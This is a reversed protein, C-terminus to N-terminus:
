SRAPKCCFCSAASRLQHLPWHLFEDLWESIKKKLMVVLMVKMRTKTWSDVTKYDRQGKSALQTPWARLSSRSDCKIENRHHRTRLLKSCSAPSSRINGKPLHTQHSQPPLLPTELWCSTVLTGHPGTHSQQMKIRLSDKLQKPCFHLGGSWPNAGSRPHPHRWQRKGPKDRATSAAGSSGPAGKGLLFNTGIGPRPRAFIRIRAVTSGAPREAARHSNIEKYIAQRGWQFTLVLAPNRQQNEAAQGAARHTSLTSHLLPAADKAFTGEHLGSPFSLLVLVSRGGERVRLGRDQRGKKRQETNHKSSKGM